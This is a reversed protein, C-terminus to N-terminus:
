NYKLVATTQVASSGYHFTFIKLDNFTNQILLM